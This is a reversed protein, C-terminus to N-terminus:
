NSLTLERMGVSSGHFGPMTKMFDSAAKESQFRGLIVRYLSSKGPKFVTANVGVKNWKACEKKAMDEGIYTSGILYFKGSKQEMASRYDAASVILSKVESPRVIAVDSKNAPETNKKVREEKKPAETKKTIKTETNTSAVEASLIPQSTDTAPADTSAAEIQPTSKTGFFQRGFYWGSGALTLIAFGAAVKWIWGRNPQTEALELIQADEFEDTQTIAPAAQHVVEVKQEAVQTEKSKTLEDLRIIPLGFSALDLNLAGSPIFFVQKEANVFFNGLKGLALNRNLALHNEITLVARKIFATAGAYDLGEKERLYNALIGDDSQIANNFFVSYGAPKLEFTFHNSSAQFERYIFSGLGPITVCQHGGLLELISSELKELNEM